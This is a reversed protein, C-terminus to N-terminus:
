KKLEVFGKDIAKLMVAIDRWGTVPEGDDGVVDVGKEKCYAIMEGEDADFVEQWLAEFKPDTYDPSEGFIHAGISVDGIDELPDAASEKLVPEYDAARIIKQSQM